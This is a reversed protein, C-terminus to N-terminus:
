TDLSLRHSEKHIGQLEKLWSVALKGTQNGNNKEQSAETTKM